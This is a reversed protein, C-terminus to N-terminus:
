PEPKPPIQCLSARAQKKRFGTVVGRSGNVLMATKLEMDLNRLLM